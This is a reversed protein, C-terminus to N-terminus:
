GNHVFKHLLEVAEQRKESTVVVEVIGQTQPGCAWAPIPPQGYYVVSGEQAMTILPLTLLDEEGEVDLVHPTKVRILTNIAALATNSIFGPGSAVHTTPYTRERLLTTLEPFPKREVKRDIVMLSPEIGFDLLTKTTMDGVSIIRRGKNAEFSRHMAGATVIRGLPQSLTNRLSEPLILRGLRDITGQRVRRASIPLTDEAKLLPIAIVDLAAHGRTQRVDNIARAGDQTEYSVVIAELDADSAAPELRDDISVIEYRGAYGEDDLWKTLERLRVKYPRVGAGPKHRSVFAQSTLGVLVRRSVGFARTLLAMHGAHLGDFTGAVCAYGYKKM